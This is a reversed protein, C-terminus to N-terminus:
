SKDMLILYSHPKLIQRTHNHNKIIINLLSSHSDLLKIHDSWITSSFCFGVMVVLKELQLSGIGNMLLVTKLCIVEKVLIMVVLGLALIDVMHGLFRELLNSGLARDIIALQLHQIITGVQGIEQNAVKLKNILSLANPMIVVQVQILAIKFKAATNLRVIVLTSISQGNSTM